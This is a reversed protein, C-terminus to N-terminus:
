NPCVYCKDIKVYIKKSKFDCMGCNVITLLIPFQILEVIWMWAKFMNFKRTCMVLKMNLSKIAFILIGIIMFILLVGYNYVFAWFMHERSKIMDYWSQAELEKDVLSYDIHNFPYPM